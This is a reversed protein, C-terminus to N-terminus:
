KRGISSLSIVWFILASLLAYFFFVIAYPNWLIDKIGIDTYSIPIFGIYISISVLISGLLAVPLFKWFLVGRGRSLFIRYIPVGILFAFLYGFITLFIPVLYEADYKHGNFIIYLITILPLVAPAIFFGIIIRKM